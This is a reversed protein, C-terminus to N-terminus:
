LKAFEEVTESIKRARQLAVFRAKFGVGPDQYADSPKWTKDCQDANSL